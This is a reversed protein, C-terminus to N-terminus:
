IASRAMGRLLDTATVIGALRNGDMVLLRHVEEGVLRQAAETVTASSEISLVFPSMVDEVVGSNARALEGIKRPVGDKLRYFLPYGEDDSLVADPDVLDALTVVGVVRGSETVVPAGTIHQSAFLRRTTELSTDPAVAFVDRTMVDAVQM